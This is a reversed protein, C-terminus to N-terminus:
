VGVYEGSTPLGDCPVAPEDERVVPIQLEFDLLYLVGRKTTSAKIWEGRQPYFSGYALRYLQRAVVQILNETGTTDDGWIHAKVLSIRTYLQRPSTKGDRSSVEFGGWREGVPEFIVCPADLNYNIADETLEVTVDERPRVNRKWDAQIAEGAKTFIEELM